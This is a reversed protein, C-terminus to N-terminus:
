IAMFVLISLLLKQNKSPDPASFFMFAEIKNVSTYSVLNNHTMSLKLSFPFNKKERIDLFHSM